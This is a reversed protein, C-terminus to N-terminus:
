LVNHEALVFVYDPFQYGEEKLLKLTNILSEKDLNYFSEGDYNLGINEFEKNTKMWNMRDEYAIMWQETSVYSINPLPPANKIGVRKASAVHITVGGMCDEYIYLDSTKNNELITSFRCWSM